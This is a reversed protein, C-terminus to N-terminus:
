KGELVDKKARSQAKAFHSVKGRGRTSAAPNKGLGGSGGKTCSRLFYGSDSSESPSHVPNSLM